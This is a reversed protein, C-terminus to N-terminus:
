FISVEDKRIIGMISDSAYYRGRIHPIIYAM